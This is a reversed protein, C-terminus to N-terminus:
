MFAKGVERSWAWPQTGQRWRRLVERQTEVVNVAEEMGRQGAKLERPLRAGRM